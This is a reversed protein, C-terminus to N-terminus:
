IKLVKFLQECLEKINPEEFRNRKEPIHQLIVATRGLISNQVIEEIKTRLDQNPHLDETFTEGCEPCEVQIEM